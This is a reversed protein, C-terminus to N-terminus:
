VVLEDIAFGEVRAPPADSPSPTAKPTKGKAQKPAKSQKPQKPAKPAKPAAPAASSASSFSSSPGADVLPAPDAGYAKIGVELKDIIQKSIQSSIPGLLSPLPLNGSIAKAMRDSAQRQDQLQQVVVPSTGTEDFVAKKNTLATIIEDVKGVMSGVPGLISLADSIGMSPSAKIKATGDELAKLIDTNATLMPEMQTTDGTFNNVLAIMKDIYGSVTTFAETVTPLDLVASDVNNIPTSLAGTAMLAILPISKFHM